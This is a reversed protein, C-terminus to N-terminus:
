PRKSFNLTKDEFTRRFNFPAGSTLMTDLREQNDAAICLRFNGAHTPVLTAHIAESGTCELQVKGLEQDPWFPRQRYFTLNYGGSMMTVFGYQQQKFYYADNIPHSTIPSSFITDLALSISGLAGGALAVILFLGVAIIRIVDNAIHRAVLMKFALTAALVM